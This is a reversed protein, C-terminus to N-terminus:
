SRPLYKQVMELWWPWDHSAQNGWIDLAHPIERGHLIQSFSENDPRLFDQEGVALVIRMRRMAALLRADTLNPLFYPPCHYYVGDDFYGDVFQAISFAAGFCLVDSCRQPHRFGFNAAHYGGFSCGMAGVRQDPQGARGNRSNVFPLVEEVVYRDYAEQRRVRQPPDVAKNYWSEADVSDLCIAQVSGSDYEDATAQIMGRNEFDFFRGMSTPFVLYPRGTQGFTLLEMERQLNPSYWRHYERLMGM